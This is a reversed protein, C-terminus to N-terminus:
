TGNDGRIIKRLDEMFHFVNVGIRTEARLVIGTDVLIRPKKFSWYLTGNQDSYQYIRPIM